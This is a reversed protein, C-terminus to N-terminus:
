YGLRGQRPGVFLWLILGCWPFIWLGLIWLAKVGASARSGLTHVMAWIVLGLWILGCCGGGMQVYMNHVLSDM